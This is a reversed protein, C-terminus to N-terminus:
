SMGSRHLRQACADLAASILETLPAVFDGDSKTTGACQAGFAGSPLQQGLLFGIAARVGASSPLGEDIVDMLLRATRVLDYSRASTVLACDFIFGRACRACVSSAAVDGVLRRPLTNLCYSPLSPLPDERDTTAGDCTCGPQPQLAEVDTSDHTPAAPTHQFSGDAGICSTALAVAETCAAALDDLGGDCWNQLPLDAERRPVGSRNTGWILLACLIGLVFNTHYIHRVAYADRARGTVAERADSDYNIGPLYGLDNWVRFVQTAAIKARGRWAIAACELAILLECVLDYDETAVTWALFGDVAQELRDRYGGLRDPRAGFNTAYMVVHTLQYAQERLAFCPNPPNSIVSLPLLDSDDNASELGLLQHHWGLEITRFPVREIARVQETALCRRVQEDFEFDPHGASQLAIHGFGLTAVCHPFRMMLTRTRRSRARPALQEALQDVADGITSSEPAARAALLVLLAAEVVIKDTFTELKDSDDPWEQELASLCRVVDIAYNLVDVLVDSAASGDVAAEPATPGIPTQTGELGHRDNETRSLV